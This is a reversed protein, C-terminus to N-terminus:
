HRRVWGLVCDIIQERRKARVAPAAFDVGFNHQFTHRNSVNYFSLASITTHLDVPDIGPRFVGQEVGKVLIARLQEIASQNRQKMSEIQAIHEGHHVNENMVLRVFEPHEFHYDFNHGVVARLAEEPQLEEFQAAQEQARIRAYARELVARYLEDKGGFYYYIMRKSSNTKEAIEDIRAGALGKDAYERTAVELINERTELAEQKRRSGASAPEHVM